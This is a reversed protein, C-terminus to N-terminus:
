KDGKKPKPKPKFPEAAGPFPKDDAASAKGPKNEKLRKDAETGKSPKGGKYELDDDQDYGNWNHLM